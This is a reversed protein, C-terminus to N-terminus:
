HLIDQKKKFIIAASKLIMREKRAFPPPNLIKFKVASQKEKIELDM